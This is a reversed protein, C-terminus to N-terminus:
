QKWLKLCMDRMVILIRNTESSKLGLKHAEEDEQRQHRNKKPLRQRARM